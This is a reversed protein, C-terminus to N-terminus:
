LTSFLSVLCWFRRYSALSAQLAGYLNRPPWIPDFSVMPLWLSSITQSHTVKPIISGPLHCTIAQDGASVGM